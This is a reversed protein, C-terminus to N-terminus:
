SHETQQDSSEKNPCVTVTQSSLTKVSSRPTLSFILLRLINNDAGGGRAPLCQPTYTDELSSSCLDIVKNPLDRDTSILATRWGPHM